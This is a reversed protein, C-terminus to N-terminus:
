KPVPLGSPLQEPLSHDYSDDNLADLFALIPETDEPRLNLHRLLPDLPPLTASDGGDLTEAAHDMLRDYFLMVDDLTAHAGHHMYPATHRLNRLTPTRFAERKETTDPLGLAHLKFDSLMPGHHCFACGARQFAELGQKQLATLAKADGRMFRDFPSDATILTREFSAIANSVKAETITGEFRRAYDPVARLRELMAPVAQAETCADGRMEAASRIPVLAQQELSQVRNDWFMPATAPDHKKGIALGNFAANLITPTNRTLAAGISPGTLRRAPGIGAANVGLPTARGDAWGFQPHHCTACAVDKTASLIPDFFLLRGLEIKAASDGPLASSRPLADLRTDPLPEDIPSSQWVQPSRVGPRAEGGPIVIRGKWLLANTTVLSFPLSDGKSWTKSKLDFVQSERPFGPHASKPEFDVLSGDDGGLVFIQGNIVPAPNPAAVAVRPLDAEKRWGTAASYSWADKLWDRVPKGDAGAHLGAGSFLWVRGEAAAMCALIRAGGPCPPLVQWKAGESKLDLSWFTDMARTATPTEIGGAIYLVDDLVCGSMFACPQPLPPLQTDDNLWFVETFHRTADGGGAILMGRQTSVSVGYGNPRPLKGIVRWEGDFAHVTDYWVKTGGEWPMKDPFHTGGAVIIRDQHVGAFAGAFGRADPVDPLRTWAMAAILLLSKM